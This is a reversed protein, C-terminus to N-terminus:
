NPNLDTISSSFSGTSTGGDASYSDSYTPATSTSWVVGSETISAGGDSAINGGSEASNYSINNPATTQDITPASQVIGGEVNWAYVGESDSSDNSNDEHYHFNDTNSYSTEKWAGDTGGVSWGATANGSVNSSVHWSIDVYRIEIIFDKNSSSYDAPKRLVIQLDNGDPNDTDGNDSYDVPTSYPAINEFTIVLYDSYQDYYINGGKGVDIDDYQAAIIPYSHSGGWGEIGEPTYSSNGQGFTIYGNTGVYLSNYDTGGFNIGNPFTTTLDRDYYGDDDSSTVPDDTTYSEWSAQAQARTNTNIATLAITFLVGLLIFHKKKLITFIKKDM